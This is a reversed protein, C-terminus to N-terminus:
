VVLSYVLGTFEDIDFPKMIYGDASSEMALDKLNKFASYLVVPINQTLPYAKLELCIENGLEGGLFYDIIIIDPNM